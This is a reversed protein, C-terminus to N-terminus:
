IIQEEMEDEQDQVLVVPTLEVPGAPPTYRRHARRTRWDVGRWVHASKM